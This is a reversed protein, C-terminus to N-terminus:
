WGGGLARYLQVVTGIEDLRNRALELEANFLEREADLVALYLDVGGEYRLNALRLRDRLV